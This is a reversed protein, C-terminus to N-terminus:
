EQRYKIKHNHMHESPTDCDRTVFSNEKWSEAFLQYRIALKDNNEKTRLAEIFPKLQTWHKLFAGRYWHFYFLEDLTDEMIGCCILEYHNIFNVIEMFAEKDRHSSPSLLGLMRGSDRIDQFTAVSQQYTPESELKLIVDITARKRAVARNTKITNQAMNYAIAASIAIAAPGLLATAYDLLGSSTATIAVKIAETEM